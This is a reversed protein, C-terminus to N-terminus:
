TGCCIRNVRTNKGLHWLTPRCKLSLSNKALKLQKRSSSFAVISRSGGVGTFSALHYRKTLKLKDGMFGKVVLVTLFVNTPSTLGIFRINQPQLGEEVALAAGPHALGDPEPQIRDHHEVEEEADEKRSRELRPDDQGQDAPGLQGQPQRPSRTVGSVM